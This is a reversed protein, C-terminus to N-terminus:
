EEGGEPLEPMPMWHTVFGYWDRHIGCYEKGECNVFIVRKNGKPLKESVPIWRYKDKLTALEAEAREARSKFIDVLRMFDQVNTDEHIQYHMVLTQLLEAAEDPTLKM